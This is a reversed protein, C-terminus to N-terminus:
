VHGRSGGGHARGRRLRRNNVCVILEDTQDLMSRMQERRLPRDRYENMVVRKVGKLLKTEVVSQLLRLADVSALGVQRLFAVTALQRASPNALAIEGSDQFFVEALPSVFQNAQQTSAEMQPQRHQLM